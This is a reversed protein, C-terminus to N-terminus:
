LQGGESHIQALVKTLAVLTLTEMMGALKAQRTEFQPTAPYGAGPPLIRKAMERVWDDWSGSYTGFSFRYVFERETGWQTLYTLVAAQLREGNGYVDIRIGRKDDPLMETATIHKDYEIEYPAFGTPQIKTKM